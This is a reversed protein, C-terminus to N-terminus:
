VETGGVTLEAIRFTPGGTTVPVGQGDKGCTGEEHSLDDGVADIIELTRPGNGVLVAGRVASGLEGNEILYGESVSFVFDGTTPDVQGGGMKAAYLGKSTSTIIDEHTDAGPEIYTNSMRPIPVNRFSQRRGNGTSTVGDKMAEHRDYLYGRLVGDEILLTAQSPTGEDDYDYSGWLGPRTPNDSASVITAAVREGIKGSYVSAGKHVHDVELGHGVAEHLLVGGTGSNMVVAM